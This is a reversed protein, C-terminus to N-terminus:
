LLQIVSVNSWQVDCRRKAIRWSGAVVQLEDTYRIWMDIQQMEGDAQSIHSAQCYTEGRATEGEVDYLMNSVQHLTKSYSDLARMMDQIQSLSVATRGRFELEADVCFVAELGTYDKQDACKAYQYMLRSIAIHDEPSISM